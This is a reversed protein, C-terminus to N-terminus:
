DAFICGSQLIINAYPTTEGTRIVAKCDATKAKFATHPVFEVDVKQGEFTGPHKRAYRPKPRHDGRRPHDKGGEHETLCARARPHLATRRIRTRPRHARHQRSHAPRLRRDRNPRHSGHVVSCRSVDSNLIGNRKMNTLEGKGQSIKIRRLLKKSVTELSKM